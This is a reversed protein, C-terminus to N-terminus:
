IFMIMNFGLCFKAQGLDKIELEVKLHPCVENIGPESAIINFDGVYV